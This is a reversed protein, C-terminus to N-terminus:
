GLEEKKMKAGCRSCVYAPICADYCVRKGCGNPCWGLHKRKGAMPGRTM